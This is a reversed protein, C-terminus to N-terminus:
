LHYGHTLCRQSVKEKAELTADSPPELVMVSRNVHVIPVAPIDRLSLRLSQSQTAVVYRHKNTEGPWVSSEKM